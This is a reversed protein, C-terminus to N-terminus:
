CTCPSGRCPKNRSVSAVRPAPTRSSGRAAAGARTGAVASSPLPPHPCGLATSRGARCASGAPIILWSGRGPIILCSGLLACEVGLRAQHTEGQVGDAPLACLKRMLENIALHPPTPNKKKWRIATIFIFPIRPTHPHPHM